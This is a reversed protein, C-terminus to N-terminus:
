RPVAPREGAGGAAAIDGFPGALGNRRSLGAVLGHAAVVASRLLPEGRGADGTQLPHRGNTHRGSRYTAGRVDTLKNSYFNFFSM